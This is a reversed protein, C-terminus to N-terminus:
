KPLDHEPGANGGQKCPWTRLPLSDDVPDCLTPCSQSVSSACVTEVPVPHLLINILHLNNYIYIVFSRFVVVFDFFICKITSSIVDFVAPLKKKKM